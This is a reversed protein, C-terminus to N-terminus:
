KVKNSDIQKLNIKINALLLLLIVGIITTAFKLLVPFMSSEQGPMLDRSIPM